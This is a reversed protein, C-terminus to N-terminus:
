IHILSLGYEFSTNFFGGDGMPLGYNGMLYSQEGDGEGYQGYRYELFGGESNDNLNFNIVGAIADSGYQASAGDRLVEVSKIASAPIASVDPGQAGDSIYAGLWTLVSGRHRRKGNVLLLTHDPSMGRLNAPRMISAADSIPQDNVSFSPVLNRMLNAFDTDGNNQFESGSIVDVPSFTDQPSRAESRSGVVTVEEVNQADASDQAEVFVSSLIFTSLILFKKVEGEM